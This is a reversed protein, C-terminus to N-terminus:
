AAVGASDYTYATLQKNDYQDATLGLADYAAAEIGVMHFRALQTVVDRVPVWQGSLPSYMFNLNNLDGAKSIFMAGKTDYDYASIGLGDYEEATLQAADYEQARLADVRVIAEYLEDIVTQIPQLEGYRFPDRIQITTLDPINALLQEIVADVYAKTLLNETYAYNRVADIQTSLDALYASLEAAIDAKIQAFERDINANQQEIQFTIRAEFAKIEADWGDVKASLEDFATQINEQFDVFGKVEDNIETIKSILWGLDSDYTRTHPFNNFYAM